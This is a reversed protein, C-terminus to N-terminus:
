SILLLSLYSDLIFLTKFRRCSVRIHAEEMGTLSLPQKRRFAGSTRRFRELDRTGGDRLVETAGRRSSPRRPRLRRLKRKRSFDRTRKEFPKRLL